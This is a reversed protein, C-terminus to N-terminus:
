NQVLSRDAASPALVNALERHINLSPYLYKDMFWSRERQPFDLLMEEAERRPGPFRKGWGAFDRALVEVSVIATAILLFLENARKACRSKSASKFIQALDRNCEIIDRAESNWLMDPLHGYGQIDHYSEVLRRCKSALDRPVFRFDRTDGVQVDAQPEAPSGHDTPGENILSMAITSDREDNSKEIQITVATQIYIRPQKAEKLISFLYRLESAPVSAPM